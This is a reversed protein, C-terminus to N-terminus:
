RLPWATELGLIGACSYLANGDRLLVELQCKLDPNACWAM